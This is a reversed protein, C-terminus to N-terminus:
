PFDLHACDKVKVAAFVIKVLRLYVVLQSVVLPIFMLVYSILNM